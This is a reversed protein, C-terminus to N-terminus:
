GMIDTTRFFAVGVVPPYLTSPTFHKKSLRGIIDLFQGLDTDCHNSIHIRTLTGHQSDEYFPVQVITTSLGPDVEEAVLM